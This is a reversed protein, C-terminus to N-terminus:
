AEQSWINTTSVVNTEEHQVPIFKFTKVSPRADNCNWTSKPVAVGGWDYVRSSEVAQIKQSGRDESGLGQVDVLPFYLFRGTINIVVIYQSITSLFIPMLYIMVTPIDGSTFKGINGGGRTFKSDARGETLFCPFEWLKLDKLETSYSVKVPFRSFKTGTKTDV